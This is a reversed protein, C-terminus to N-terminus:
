FSSYTHLLMLYIFSFCIYFSSIDIAIGVFEAVHKQSNNVKFSQVMNQVSQLHSLQLSLFSQKLTSQIINVYLTGGHLYLCGVFKKQVCTLLVHVGDIKCPQSLVFMVGDMFTFIKGDHM